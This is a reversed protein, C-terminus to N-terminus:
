FPMLLYSIFRHVTGQYHKIVKKTHLHQLLAGVSSGVTYVPTFSRSDGLGPNVGKPGCERERSLVSPSLTLNKQNALSLTLGRKKQHCGISHQRGTESIKHFVVAEFLRNQPTVATSTCLFRSFDLQVQIMVAAEDEGYTPAVTDLDGLEGLIRTLVAPPQPM